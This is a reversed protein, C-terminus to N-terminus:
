YEVSVDRLYTIRFRKLYGITNLFEFVVIIPPEYPDHLGFEDARCKRLESRDELSM